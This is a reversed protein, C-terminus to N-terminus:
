TPRRKAGKKAIKVVNAQHNFPPLDGVKLKQLPTDTASASTTKSKFTRTRRIRTSTVLTTPEPNINQAGWLNMAGNPEYDDSESDSVEAAPAPTPTPTYKFTVPPPPNRATLEGRRIAEFLSHYGEPMQVGLRVKGDKVIKEDVKGMHPPATEYPVYPGKSVLDFLDTYKPPTIIPAYGVAAMGKKPYKFPYVALAAGPIKEPITETSSPVVTAAPAPPTSLGLAKAQASEVAAAAAAFRDLTIPAYNTPPATRLPPLNAFRDVKTVIITPQESPVSTSLSRKRIGSAAEVLPTPRTIYRPTVMLPPIPYWQAPKHHHATASPPQASVADLGAALNLYDEGHAGALSGPVALEIIRPGDLKSPDVAAAALPILVTDTVTTAQVSASDAPLAVVPLAASDVPTGNSLISRKHIHVTPKPAAMSMTTVEEEEEEVDAVATPVTLYSAWEPHLAIAEEPAVWEMGRQGGPKPQLFVYGGGTHKPAHTKTTVTPQPADGHRLTTTQIVGSPLPTYIGRNRPFSLFRDQNFIPIGAPQVMLQKYHVDDKWQMKDFYTGMVRIDDYVTGFEDDYACDRIM